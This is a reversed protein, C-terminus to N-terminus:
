VEKRLFIWKGILYIVAGAILFGIFSVAPLPQYYLYIAEDTTRQWDVGAVSFIGFYGWLVLRNVAAPFFMSFLGLFGGAIGVILPLIQNDSILSLVHQISLIVAGVATMAIFHEAFMDPRIRETFGMVKGLLILGLTEGASFVILYKLEFLYKIDYFRGPKELTYLLKLTNGKIEMDCLRSAVVSLMVPMFIANMTSMSYLFYQYGTALDMDDFNRVSALTWLLLLALFSVPVLWVYRTRLKRQEALFLHQRSVAQKRADQEQTERRQAAPRMGSKKGEKGSMIRSM